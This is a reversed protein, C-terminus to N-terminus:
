ALMRQAEDMLSGRPILESRPFKGVLVNLQPKRKVLVEPLVIVAAPEPSDPPVILNMQDVRLSVPRIQIYDPGHSLVAKVRRLVYELTEGVDPFEALSRENEALKHEVEEIKDGVGNGHDLMSELGACQRRLIALRAQLISRQQTLDQRRTNVSAVQELAQTVLFKFGRRRIQIRMDHDSESTLVVKKERFSVATQAVDHQIVDGHVQMGFRKEERRVLRLGAWVEEAGPANAFFEQVDTSRSFVAPIDRATAFLARLLPSDSWAGASMAVAAPVQAELERCYLIAQAVPKSLKRQYGEVLKLRPDVMTVVQEIRQGVIAPDVEAGTAVDNGGFLFDLIGV